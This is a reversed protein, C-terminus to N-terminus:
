PNPILSSSRRVRRGRARCSSSIRSSCSAPTTTGRPSTPSRMAAPSSSCSRPRMARRSAAGGAHAGYVVARRPAGRSRVGVHRARSGCPRGHCVSSLGIRAARRQSASAHALAAAARSRALARARRCIRGRSPRSSDSRVHRGPHRREDNSPSPHDALYKWAAEQLEPLGEGTVRLHAPVSSRAVTVHAELADVADPDGVADMKTAAVIQPKPPLSPASRRSSASSPRSTRLRIAARQAPSM